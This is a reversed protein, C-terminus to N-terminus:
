PEQTALNGMFSQKDLQGANNWWFDNARVPDLYRAEQHVMVVPAQEMEDMEHLLRDVTMLIGMFAGYTEIAQLSYASCTPLMRCRDGDVASITERFGKVGLWLLRGPM